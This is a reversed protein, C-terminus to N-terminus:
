EITTPGSKTMHPLVPQALHYTNRKASSNKSLITRLTKERLIRHRFYGSDRPEREDQKKIFNRQFSVDAYYGAFDRGQAEIDPATYNATVEANGGGGQDEGKKLKFNIIEGASQADYKSNRNTIIKISAVPSTPIQELDSGLASNRGDILVNTGSSGCISM